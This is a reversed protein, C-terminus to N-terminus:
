AAALDISLSTLEGPARRAATHADGRSETLRRVSGPTLAGIPLM